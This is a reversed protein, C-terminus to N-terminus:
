SRTLCRHHSKKCFYNVTFFGDVIKSFLEMIYTQYSGLYVKSICLVRWDIAGLWWHVSNWKELWSALARDSRLIGYNWETEQGSFKTSPCLKRLTEPSEGSVTNKWLIEEGLFSTFSSYKLCHCVFIEWIDKENNWQITQGISMYYFLLTIPKDTM